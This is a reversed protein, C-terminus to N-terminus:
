GEEKLKRERAEDLITKSRKAQIDVLRKLADRSSIKKCGKALMINSRQLRYDIETM